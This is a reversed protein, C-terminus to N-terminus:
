GNEKSRMEIKYDILINDIISEAEGLARRSLLDQYHCDPCIDDVDDLYIKIQEIKDILEEITIM